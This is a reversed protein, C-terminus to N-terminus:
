KREDLGLFRRRNEAWAKLCAADRTAAQGLGTCRALEAQLPDPTSANQGDIPALQVPAEQKRSLGIVAVTIAAAVFAIAGIRALTQGEM